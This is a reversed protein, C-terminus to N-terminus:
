NKTNKYDKTTLCVYDIILKWLEKQIVGEEM